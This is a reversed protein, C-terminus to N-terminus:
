KAELFLTLIITQVDTPTVIVTTLYNTKVVKILTCPNQFTHALSLLNRWISSKDSSYYWLINIFM